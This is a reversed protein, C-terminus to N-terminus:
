PRCREEHKLPLETHLPLSLLLDGHPASQQAVSPLDSGRKIAPGSREKIRPAKRHKQLCGEIGM